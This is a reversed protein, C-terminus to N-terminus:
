AVMEYNLFRILLYGQLMVSLLLYMYFLFRRKVLMQTLPLFLPFASLLYRPMGLFTGSLLPILLSLLCYSLLPLGLLKRAKFLLWAGLFVAALHLLVIPPPKYVSGIQQITAIIESISKQVSALNLSRNWDKEQRYFLLFDGFSLKLYLGYMVLGLSSVPLSWWFQKILMRKESLLKLVLYVVLVIGIMRTASALAAFLTALPYNKKEASLFTLGVLVLYLPESMPALLMFSFPFAIYTLIIKEPPLEKQWLKCLQTFLFLFGLTLGSALLIAIIDHAGTARVLLPWLPFFVASVEGYGRQAVNMYHFTDASTVWVKIFRESLSYRSLQATAAPLSPLMLIVFSHVALFWGAFIQTEIRKGFFSCRILLKHM